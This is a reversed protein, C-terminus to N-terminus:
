LGRRRLSEIEYRLNTAIITLTMLAQGQPCAAWHKSKFELYFQNEEIYAVTKREIQFLINELKSSLRQEM